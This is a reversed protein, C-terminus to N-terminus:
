IPRAAGGYDHCVRGRRRWVRAERRALRPAEASRLSATSVLGPMAAAVSPLTATRNTSSPHICGAHFGLAAIRRRSRAHACTPAAAASASRTAAFALYGAGHPRQDAWPRASSSESRARPPLGYLHFPDAAASTDPRCSRTSRTGACRWRTVPRWRRSATPGSSRFGSTRSTSSACGATGIAPQPDGPHLVERTPLPVSPGSEPSCGRCRSSPRRVREALELRQRDMLGAGFERDLASTGGCPAGRVAVGARAQSRRRADALRSASSSCVGHARRFAATRVRWGGDVVRRQRRRLGALAVM